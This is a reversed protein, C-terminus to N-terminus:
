IIIWNNYYIDQTDKPGDIGFWEKPCIVQGHGSLNNLYAGWWSFSSNAIISGNCLTMACLDEAEGAFPSFTHQAFNDKCWAIDDSFFLFKRNPFFFMALEYWQKTLNTHYRPLNLYDTRRIHVSVYNSCDLTAKVKEIIHRKFSLENKIFEKCHEFYKATQLYGHYTANDPNSFLRPNFCFSGEGFDYSFLSDGCKRDTINFYELLKTHELNFCYSYHNKLAIGVISAYQFMQNGLRGQLGITRHTIM